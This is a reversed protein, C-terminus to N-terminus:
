RRGEEESRRSRRALVRAWTRRVVERHEGSAHDLAIALAAEVREPTAGAHLAGRMHSYLQRPVGLVALQAVICLERVDLELGPRGLVRGYGEEVMWREMAPHLARVNERLAPYQGRYIRRCVAEGRAKWDADEPEPVSARGSLRRWLALANLAAPYGLFLHSQLLVEEVAVAPAEAHARRLAAEVDPGSGSAGAAALAASVGVLAGDGGGGAGNTVAPAPGSDKSVSDRM